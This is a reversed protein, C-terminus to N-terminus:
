LTIGAPTRTYWDAIYDISAGAQNTLLMKYMRPMPHSLFAQETYTTDGGVSPPSSEVTYVTKWTTGGDTTVQLDLTFAGSAAAHIVADLPDSLQETFLTAVASSALTGSLAYPGSSAM